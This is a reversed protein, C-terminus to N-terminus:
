VLAKCYPQPGHQLSNTKYAVIENADTPWCEFYSNGYRSPSAHRRRLIIWPNTAESPDGLWCIGNQAQNPNPHIWTLWIVHKFSACTGQGTARQTWIASDVVHTCQNRPCCCGGSLASSLYQGTFCYNIYSIPKRTFLRVMLSFLLKAGGASAHPHTTSTSDCSQVLLDNPSPSRFAIFM